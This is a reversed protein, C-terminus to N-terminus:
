YGGLACTVTLAMVGFATARHRRVPPPKGLEALRGLEAPINGSRQWAETALEFAAAHRPDAALWRRVKAELAADRGPAHLETVWLAAQRRIRRPAIKNLRATRSEM